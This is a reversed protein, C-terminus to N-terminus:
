LEGYVTMYSPIVRVQFPGPGAFFEGDVNLGKGEQGAEPILVASKAKIYSFLPSSREDTKLGVSRGLYRALLGVTDVIGGKRALIIDLAGDSAHSFRADPTVNAFGVTIFEGHTSGALVQTAGSPTTVTIAEQSPHKPSEEVVFGASNAHTLVAAASGFSMSSQHVSTGVATPSASATVLPVNLFSAIPDQMPACSRCNAGCPELFDREVGNVVASSSIIGGGEELGHLDIDHSSLLRKKKSDPSSGNSSLDSYTPSGPHHSVSRSTGIAVDFALPSPKLAPSRKAHHTPAAADENVVALLASGGGSGGSSGSVAGSGKRAQLGDGSALESSLKSPRRAHLQSTQADEMSPLAVYSGPALTETSSPAPAGSGFTGSPTILAPINSSVQQFHGKSGPPAFSAKYTSKEMVEADGAEEDIPVPGFRFDGAWKVAAIHKVIGLTVPLGHKAKLYDYRRIGMYRYKESEEAISAGVGWAIGCLSIARENVANAVEIVDLPRVLRKIVCYISDLTRTTRLGVALANQTGAPISLLPIDRLAWQAFPDSFSHRLSHAGESSAGSAIAALMPPRGTANSTSATASAADVPPVVHAASSAVDGGMSSALNVQNRAQLLVGDVFEAVTGDGGIIIVGEYKRYDFSMGLETAHNSRETIVYDCVIGAHSLLPGIEKEWLGGANHGGSHKNLVV